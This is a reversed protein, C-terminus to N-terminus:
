ASNASRYAAPNGQVVAFPKVDKVVVARALCIAGNGLTVGPGVFVDAFCYVSSEINIARDIREFSRSVYDRSATCLFCNQSVCSNEGIKLLATNLIRVDPGLCGHHGIVLNSPQYIKVSPYIRVSWSVDAGFCKLVLVRWVFFYAPTWRCLFLWAWRWVVRIVM